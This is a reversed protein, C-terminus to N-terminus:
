LDIIEGTTVNVAVGQVNKIHLTQYIQEAIASGIGPATTLEELSAARVNKLSGFTAILSKKKSPGLGPVQDLESDVM